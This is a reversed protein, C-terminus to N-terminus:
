GCSERIIEKLVSKAKEVFEELTGVNSLRINAMEMVKGMGLEMESKDRSRLLEYVDGVDDSRGRKAIRAARVEFPAEISVVVVHAYRKFVELEQPTRCGDVLVVCEDKYKEEIKEVVMRALVDVGHKERLESAIKRLNSSTLELNRKRAEERVIDGMVIVPIGLSQAVEAFTGKGAGPLGVTVVITRPIESGAFVLVNKSNYLRPQSFIFRM